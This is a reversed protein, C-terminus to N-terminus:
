RSSISPLVRDAPDAGQPRSIIRSLNKLDSISKQLKETREQVRKELTTNLRIIERESNIRETIDRGFVTIETLKGDDYLPNFSCSM